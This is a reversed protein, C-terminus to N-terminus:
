LLTCFLEMDLLDVDEGVSVREDSHFKQGLVRVHVDGQTVEVKEYPHRATPVAWFVAYLHQM